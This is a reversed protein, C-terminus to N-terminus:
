PSGNPATISISGLSVGPTSEYFGFYRAHASGDVPVIGSSGGDSTMVTFSTVRTDDEPQLYFYFAATGPPLTVTPTGMFRSNYYVDGSYGQGWGVSGGWGTYPGSPGARRHELGLSFALTGGLPSSVSTLSPSGPPPDANNLAFPTMSYAGLTGPPAETGPSGDFTAAANCPWQTLCACGFVLTL